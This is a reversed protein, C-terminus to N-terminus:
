NGKCPLTVKCPDDARGATTVIADAGCKTCTVLYNGIRKAPYPLDTTCGPRSSAPRLDVEIGNPFDPHPACKPERGSDSWLITIAGSM